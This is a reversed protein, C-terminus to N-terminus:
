RLVGKKVPLTRAKGPNAKGIFLGKLWSSHFSDKGEGRTM